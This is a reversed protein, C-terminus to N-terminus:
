KLKRWLTTRNIGLRKAAKSQNMNEEQLVNLIIQKEIEELTGSLDINGRQTKENEKLEKLVSIVEDKQIYPGSSQLVFQETVQRLQRVNGPWSFGELEGLLDQRIGVIEKGHVSNFHGIFLRTLDEIDQKRQRLPPIHIYGRVLLQYLEDSFSPDRELDNMNKRSSVILRPFEKENSQLHALLNGTELPLQEINKIYLSGFNSLPPIEQTQNSDSLIDGWKEAKTLAADIQIFSQGNKTAAQHIAHAFVDKGTGTEGALWIPSKSQSLAKAKEVTQQIAESSGTIRSFPYPHHSFAPERITIGIEEKSVSSPPDFYIMTYTQQELQQRIGSIPYVKEGIQLVTSHIKEESMRQLFTQVAPHSLVDLSHFKKENSYILRGKENLVVIAQKCHDLIQKLLRQKHTLDHFFRYTEKVDQFAEKVSESGSTILIDQLGLRRATEVTVVDGIIVEFGHEKIENLKPEVENEDYVTYTAIDINLLNCITAAGNSISPFGLIAVRGSYDKALTLVRLVDYGSVQIDIVPISVHEKILKATGGRSLIIDYGQEEASKAAKLGEELNGYVVHLDFTPDEKGLHEILEKLGRYPAIGLVKIKMPDELKMQQM